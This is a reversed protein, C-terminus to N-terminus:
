KIQRFEKKCIESIEGNTLPWNSKNPYYYNSLYSQIKSSLSDWWNKHEESIYDTSEVVNQKILADVTGLRIRKDLIVLFVDENPAVYLKLLNTNLTFERGKKYCAIDYKLDEEQERYFDSLGDSM